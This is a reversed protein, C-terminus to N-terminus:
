TQGNSITTQLVLAATPAGVGVEMVDVGKRGRHQLQWRITEGPTTAFDQHLNTRQTANLEALQSGDPVPVGQFPTRWTEIKNDTAGTSWGPVTSADSQRYTNAPIVPTEVSGNVISANACVEPSQAANAPSVPLGGFILAASSVVATM